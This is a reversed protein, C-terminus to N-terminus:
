RPCCRPSTWWTPSRLYKVSFEESWAEPCVRLPLHGAGDGRRERGHRPRHVGHAVGGRRPGVRPTLHQARHPRRGRGAGGDFLVRERLHWDRVGDHRNDMGGGRRGSRAPGEGEGQSRRTGGRASLRGDPGTRRASARTSSTTTWATPSTARSSRATAVVVRRASAGLRGAAGAIDASRRLRGIRASREARVWLFPARRRRRRRAIGDAYRAELAERTVCGRPYTPM